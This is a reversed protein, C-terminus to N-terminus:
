EGRQAPEHDDDDLELMFEAVDRFKGTRVEAESLEIHKPNCM